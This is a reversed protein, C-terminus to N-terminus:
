MIVAPAGFYQEQQLMELAPFLHCFKRQLGGKQHLLFEKGANEWHIERSKKKSM